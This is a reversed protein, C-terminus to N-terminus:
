LRTAGSEIARYLAADLPVYAGARPDDFYLPDRILEPDFGERVLDVKRQKFTSTADIKEQIRLFLPRAPPPLHSHIHRRLADLDFAADGVVAAMGARGDQGKVAVGYINAEAVGACTHITEAVESTSVNEGKWRYTDGIRDVFYYYGRRDRRLLDGSRFWMDGPKFVDRMIKSETAARDAYGDFRQGPKLPNFEIHSILEGVEDAACRVCFGDAGRVPRENEIDYRVIAMPFIIGAWSPCRGVAGPTDDFNFLVANGETAAYFERIHPIRFRAQFEQWIDPRLGNGCAVRLRHQKEKPHPPANVLYRCLEGIYQLLTCEHDVVDDWFRGASFKEAIWVSGGALLCAGLACVGGVTHYMPLCDYIRDEETAEMVCSFALMAAIVRYHNITAAKPMGTTGSTYIYLCRDDHILAPRQEPPLPGDDLSAVAEDVAPVAPDGPGHRWVKPQSALLPAATAYLATLTDAVIVHKPAVIDICYALARGALNTNLLATVGGARAIGLWVAAFEPRNPMLLCVVDGKGIGNALAWRAYRNGRADLEGYTLTERDSMLAPRDGYKAALEAAVDPWIRKPDRALPIVRALTRVLGTAYTMDTRMDDLWGV